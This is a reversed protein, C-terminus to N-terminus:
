FELIIIELMYKTIITATMFWPFADSYFLFIFLYIHSKWQM